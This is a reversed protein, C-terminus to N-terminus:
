VADLCWSVKCLISVQVEVSLYFFWCHKSRDQKLSGISTTDDSGPRENRMERRVVYEWLSLWHIAPRDVGQLMQRYTGTERGDNEQSRRRQLFGLPNLPFIGVDFCFFWRSLKVFCWSISSNYGQLLNTNWYIASMKSHPGIRPTYLTPVGIEGGREEKESSYKNPVPRDGWNELGGPRHDLQRTTHPPLSTYLYLTTDEDKPPHQFLM